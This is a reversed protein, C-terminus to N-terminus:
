LAELVTSIPKLKHKKVFFSYGDILFLSKRHSQKKLYGKINFNQKLNRRFGFNISGGRALWATRGFKNLYYGFLTLRDQNRRFPMKMSKLKFIEKLTRTRLVTNSSAWWLWCARRTLKTRPIRVVGGGRLPSTRHFWKTQRKCQTSRLWIEKNAIGVYDYIGAIHKEKGTKDRCDARTMENLQVNLM